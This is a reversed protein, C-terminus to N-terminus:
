PQRGPDRFAFRVGPELAEVDDVPEWLTSAMDFVERPVIMSFTSGREENRRQVRAWRTEVPADLVTVELVAGVARAREYIDSRASRQILGFELVPTVGATTLDLAHQWLTDVLRAKNELYWAIFGGGQRSPRDPSYLRAFWEDLALHVVGRERAMEKAMTSKGAGVPGEILHIIAM